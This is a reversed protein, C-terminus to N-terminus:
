LWLVQEEGGALPVLKTNAEPEWRRLVLPRRVAADRWRVSLQPLHSVLRRKPRQLCLRRLLGLAACDPWTRLLGWGQGRLVGSCPGGAAVDCGRCFLGPEPAGIM